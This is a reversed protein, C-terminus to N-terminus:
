FAINTEEEIIIKTVRKNNETLGFEGKIRDINEKTNFEPKIHITVETGVNTIYGDVEGHLLKKQRETLRSM